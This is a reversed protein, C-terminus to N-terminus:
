LWCTEPTHQQLPPPPPARWIVVIFLWCVRQRHIFTVHQFRHGWKIVLVASLCFVRKVLDHRLSCFVCLFMGGFVPMTSPLSSEGDTFGRMVLWVTLHLWLWTHLGCLTFMYVFVYTANLDAVRTPATQCDAQLPPLHQQKKKESSM